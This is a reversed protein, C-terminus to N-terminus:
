GHTAAIGFLFKKEMLTKGQDKAQDGPADCPASGNPSGNCDPMVEPKKCPSLDFFQPTEGDPKTAAASEAAGREAGWYRFKSGGLPVKIRRLRWCRFSFQYKKTQGPRNAENARRLRTQAAAM